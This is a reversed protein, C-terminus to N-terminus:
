LNWENFEPIYDLSIEKNRLDRFVDKKLEDDRPVEVYDVTPSSAYCDIEYMKRGDNWTFMITVNIEYEFPKENSGDTGFSTGVKNYQYSFEFYAENEATGMM